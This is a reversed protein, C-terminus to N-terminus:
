ESIEKITPNYKPTEALPNERNQDVTTKRTTYPSNQQEILEVWKAVLGPDEM